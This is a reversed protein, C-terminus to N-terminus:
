VLEANRNVMFQPVKSRIRKVLATMLQDDDSSAAKVSLNSTLSGSRSDKNMAPLREYM